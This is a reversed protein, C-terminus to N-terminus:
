QNKSKVIKRKKKIEKKIASKKSWKKLDSNPDTSQEDLETRTLGRFNKITIHISKSMTLNRKFQRYRVAIFYTLTLRRLMRASDQYKLCFVTV